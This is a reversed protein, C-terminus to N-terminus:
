IGRTTVDYNMIKFTRESGVLIPIGILVFSLPIGVVLASVLSSKHPTSAWLVEEGDDLTLWDLDVDATSEADTEPVQQRQGTDASM